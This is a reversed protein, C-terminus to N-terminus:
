REVVQYVLVGQVFVPKFYTPGFQYLTAGQAQELRYGDPLYSVLTGAPPKIVQYKGDHEEFFTGFFYYRSAQQGAIRYAAAPLKDVVAGFPATVVIFPPGPLLWFIGQDYLYGVGGVDVSQAAAPTEQTSEGPKRYYAGRPARLAAQSSELVSQFYEEHETSQQQQQKEVEDRRRVRGAERAQEEASSLGERQMQLITFDFDNDDFDSSFTDPFLAAAPAASRSPSRPAPGSTFAGATQAWLLVQSALACGFLLGVAGRLRQATLTTKM